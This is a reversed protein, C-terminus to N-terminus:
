SSLLPQVEECAAAPAARAPTRSAFDCPAGSGLPSPTSFRSPPVIISERTKCLQSLNTPFPSVDNRTQRIRLKPSRVRAM